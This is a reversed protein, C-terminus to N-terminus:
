WKRPYSTGYTGPRATGLTYIERRGPVVILKVPLAAVDAAFDVGSVIPQLLGYNYGYREVYAQEFRLPRHSLNSAQWFFVTEGFRPGPTTPAADAAFRRAAVDDPLEGEPPRIDTTLSTIPKTTPEAAFPAVDNSTVVPPLTESQPEVAYTPALTLGAWVVGVTIVSRQFM